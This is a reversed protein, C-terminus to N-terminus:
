WCCCCIHKLERCTSSKCLWSDCTRAATIHSHSHSHQPQPKVQMAVLESSMVMCFQAQAGEMAASALRVRYWSCRGLVGHAGALGAGFGAPAEEEEYDDEEEDAAAAATPNLALEWEPGADWRGMM